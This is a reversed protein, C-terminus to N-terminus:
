LIHHGVDPGAHYATGAGGQDVAPLPLSAAPAPSTPPHLRPLQPPLHWTPPPASELGQPHALM